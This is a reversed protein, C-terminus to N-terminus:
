AVKGDKGAAPEGDRGEEVGQGRGPQQEEYWEVEIWSHLCRKHLRWTMSAQQFPDSHNLYELQRLMYEEAASVCIKPGLFSLGLTCPSCVYGFCFCMGCPWYTALTENVRTIASIFEAKSLRSRELEPHFTEDYHSSVGNVFRLGRAPLNVVRRDESRLAQM